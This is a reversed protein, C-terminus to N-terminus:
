VITSGDPTEQALTRSLSAGLERPKAQFLPYLTPMDCVGERLRDARTLADLAETIAMSQEESNDEAYTLFTLLFEMFTTNNVM